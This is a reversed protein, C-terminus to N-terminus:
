EEASGDHEVEELDSWGKSLPPRRRRCRDELLGPVKAYVCVQLTQATVMILNCTMNDPDKM